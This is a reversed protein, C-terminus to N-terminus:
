NLSRLCTNIKKLEVGALFILTQTLKDTQIEDFKVYLRYICLRYELKWLENVIKEVTTVFNLQRDIYKENNRISIHRQTKSYEAENGSCLISSQIRNGHKGPIQPRLDSHINLLSLSLSRKACKQNKHPKPKSLCSFNLHM